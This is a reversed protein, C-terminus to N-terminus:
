FLAHVINLVWYISVIVIKENFFFFFQVFETDWLSKSQGLIGPLPLSRPEFSM